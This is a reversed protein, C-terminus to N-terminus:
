RSRDVYVTIETTFENREIDHRYEYGISSVNWWVLKDDRDKGRISQRREVDPLPPAHELNICSSVILNHFGSGDEKLKGHGVAVVFLDVRQKTRDTM